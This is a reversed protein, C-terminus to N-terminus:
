LPLKELSSIRSKFLNVVLPSKDICNLRKWDSSAKLANELEEFKKEAPRTFAKIAEMGKM